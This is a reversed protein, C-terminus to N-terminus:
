VAPLEEEAEEKVADAVVDTDELTVAAIEQLVEDRVAPDEEILANIKHAAQLVKLIEENAARLEADAKLAVITSLLGEQRDEEALRKPLAIMAEKDENRIAEIFDKTHQEVTINKLETM